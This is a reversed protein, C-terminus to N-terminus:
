EWIDSWSRSDKTDATSPAPGSGWNVEANGGLNPKSAAIIHRTAVAVGKVFPAIYTKKM